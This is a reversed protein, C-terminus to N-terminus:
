SKDIKRGTPALVYWDAGFGKIGQGYSDSTDMDNGYLYLPHGKCTVEVTGDSRTITGLDAAVAAGGAKPTGSSTV